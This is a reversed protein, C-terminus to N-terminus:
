ATLPLSLAWGPCLTTLPFTGSMVAFSRCASEAAQPRRCSPLSFSSCRNLLIGRAANQAQSLAADRASLARAAARLHGYLKLVVGALPARAAARGILPRHVLRQALRMADWAEVELAAQGVEVDHRPAGGM